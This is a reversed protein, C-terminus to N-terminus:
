ENENDDKLVIHKHVIKVYTGQIAVRYEKSQFDIEYEFFRRAETQAESTVTINKGRTAM